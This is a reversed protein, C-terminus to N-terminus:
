RKVKRYTFPPWHMLRVVKGGDTLQNDLLHPLRSMECGQQGGRGTVSIAKGKKKGIDPIVKNQPIM